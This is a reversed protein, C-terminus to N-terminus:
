DRIILRTTYVSINYDTNALISPRGKRMNYHVGAKFLGNQLNWLTTARM